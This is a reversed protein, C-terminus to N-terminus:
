LEMEVWSNLYSNVTQTDGFNRGESRGDVDIGLPNGGGQSSDPSNKRLWRNGM